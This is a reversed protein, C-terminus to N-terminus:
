PAHKLVAENREDAEIVRYLTKLDSARGVPVSLKDIEYARTYRLTRGVLETKSHYSAFGDDVDVAAPLSDV